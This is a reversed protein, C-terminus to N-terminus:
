IHRDCFVLGLRNTLYLTGYFYYDGKRYALMLRMRGAHPYFGSLKRGASNVLVFSTEMEVVKLWMLAKKASRGSATEAELQM